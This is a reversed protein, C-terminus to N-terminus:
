PLPVDKLVFPMEVLVPRRGVLSLTAGSLGEAPREVRLQATLAAASGDFGWEIAQPTVKLLKGSADRVQFDPLAIDGARRNIRLFPRARGKVQVPINLVENAADATAVLRVRLTAQSGHGENAAEIHLSRSDTTWAQEKGKGFVDPVTIIPEPPAIVRAVVVGELEALQHPRTGGTKLTIPFRSSGNVMGDDMIVDGNLVVVQKAILLQDVGIIGPQTPPGPYAPALAQRNDATARRVEIGIIEQVPILPAADVSVYFTLEGTAADYKNQAFNAPMAQVRIAKKNDVPNPSKGDTLRIFSHLEIDGSLVQLRRVARVKKQVEDTQGTSGPPPGHNEMLGAAAYFAQVAEWFPVEGTDLTVLRRFDADRSPELQFRVGTKKAVEIVAQQLPVKDLKIAIKPAALLRESRLARAITEAIAAARTRLEPDPSTAAARLAKLAPEGAVVLDRAAREREAYRPHALAQVKAEYPDPTEAVLPAALLPFLLLGLVRGHVM